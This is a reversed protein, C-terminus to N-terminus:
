PKDGAKPRARRRRPSPDEPGPAREGARVDGEPRADGDASTEAAELRAAEKLLPSEPGLESILRAGHNTERFKRLLELQVARAAAADHQRALAQQAAYLAAAALARQEQGHAAAVGLLDLVGDSNGEGIELRAAGILYDHLGRNTQLCEGRLRELQALAEAKQGRVLMAQARLARAIEAIPRQAPELAALEAEAAAADGAALALAAVYLGLARPSSSGLKRLRARVRPLAAAARSSDFGVLALEPSLDTESDYRLRRHGPLSSLDTVSLRLTLCVCYPEIADEAQHLALRAWMLSQAVMYASSSRRDAFRKFLSEAPELLAAYTGDALKTQLEHLPGSLEDRLLDFRAQDKAVTGQVIQDWGIPRSAPGLCVGDENFSYVQKDKLRLNPRLVLEDGFAPASIAVLLWAAAVRAPWNSTRRGEPRPSISM